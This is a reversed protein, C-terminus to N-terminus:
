RAYNTCDRAPQQLMMAFLGLHTAWAIEQKYAAESNRRILFDTSDLNIWPSLKGV